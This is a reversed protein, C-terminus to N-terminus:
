RAPASKFFDWFSTMVDWAPWNHPLLPDTLGILANGTQPNAWKTAQCNAPAQAIVVASQQTAGLFKIWLNLKDAFSLMVVGDKNPGGNIPHTTDLAGQVMFAPMPAAAGTANPDYVIFPAGPSSQFGATGAVTGIAAVRRSLAPDSAVRQCLASGGSFGVLYIRRADITFRSQLNDMLFGVYPVNEADNWQFANPAGNPIPLGNPFVAIFGEKEAKRTIGKAPHYMVAANGSTGHFAFVLPVARGQQYSAPVYLAVRREVGNFAVSIWQVNVRAPMVTNEDYKTTRPPIPWRDQGPERSERNSSQAFAAPVTISLCLLLAAIFRPRTSTKM